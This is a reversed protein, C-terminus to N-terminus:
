AARSIAFTNTEDILKQIYSLVASDKAAEETSNITSGINSKIFDKVEPTLDTTPQASPGTSVTKLTILSSLFNRDDGIIMIQGVIPCLELFKHEIPIPAVNEGGGTIILEKLRGSIVLFGDQDLYGLDGSHVYGEADITERTAKENKLYGVFM